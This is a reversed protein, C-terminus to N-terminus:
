PNKRLNLTPIGTTLQNRRLQRTPITMKHCWAQVGHDWEASTDFTRMRVQTNSIPTATAHAAGRGDGEVAASRAGARGGSSEAVISRSQACGSLTRAPRASHTSLSWDRGTGRGGGGRHLHSSREEGRMRPM